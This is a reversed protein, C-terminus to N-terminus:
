KVVVKTSVGNVTFDVHLIAIDDLGQLNGPNCSFDQSNVLGKEAAVVQGCASDVTLADTEEEVSGVAAPAPPPPSSLSLGRV